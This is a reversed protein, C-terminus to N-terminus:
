SMYKLLYSTNSLVYIDFNIRVVRKQFLKLWTCEIVFYHFYHSIILCLLRLIGVRVYSQSLLM